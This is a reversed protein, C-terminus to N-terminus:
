AHTKPNVNDPKINRPLSTSEICCNYLKRTFISKKISKHWKWFCLIYYQREQIETSLAFDFRYTLVTQTVDRNWGISCRNLCAVGGARLGLKGTQLLYIDNFSASTMEIPQFYIQLKYRDLSSELIMQYIRKLHEQRSQMRFIGRMGRTVYSAINLRKSYFIRSFELIIPWYSGM